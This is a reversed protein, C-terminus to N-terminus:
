VGVVTLTTVLLLLGAGLLGVVDFTMRLMGRTQQSVRVRIKEIAAVAPVLFPLSIFCAICAQESPQRGVLLCLGLVGVLILCLPWEINRSFKFLEIALPKVRPSQPQEDVRIKGVVFGEPVKAPPGPNPIMAQCAPCHFESVVEVQHRRVVYRIRLPKSCHPCTIFRHM